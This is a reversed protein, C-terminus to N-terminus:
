HRKKPASPAAVPATAAIAIADAWYSRLRREHGRAGEALLRRGNAIAAARLKSRRALAAARITAIARRPPKQTAELRELRDLLVTLDQAQGLLDSLERAQRERAQFYGPWAARMLRMHRWHRQVAKRWDHCDGDGPDPKDVADFTARCRRYVRGYGKAFTALDQEALDGAALDGAALSLERWAKAAAKLGARAETIAKGDGGRELGSDAALAIRVVAAAATVSATADGATLRDLTSLLVADDRSASLLRAIDRFRENERRYAAEGLAPRALAILARLRKMSRRAEHVGTVADVGALKAIARAIQEAGIRTFGDTFTEDLAFRYSM